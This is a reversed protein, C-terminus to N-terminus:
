QTLTRLRASLAEARKIYASYDTERREDAEAVDTFLTVYDAAITQYRAAFDPPSGPRRRKARKAGRAAVVPEPNTVRKGALALQYKGDLDIIQQAVVAAAASFQTRSDAADERRTHTALVARGARRAAVFLLLSGLAVGGLAAGAVLFRPLSPSITRAGDPLYGLKVLQDYNVVVVKVADLWRDAFADVGDSVTTEVVARRGLTGGDITSCGYTDVDDGGDAKLLVVLTGAAARKVDHCTDRLDDAPSMIIVVLHRYGIVREAAAEDLDVGPAAYVSSTRVDRAVATDFVGGSWLAWGALGLCALAALGFPTPLLRAIM